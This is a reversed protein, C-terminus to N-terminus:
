RILPIEYPLSLLVIEAGNLAGLHLTPPYTTNLLDTSIEFLLETELKNQVVNIIRGAPEHTHNSSFIDQGEQTLGTTKGLLMRRKMKGLYHSRAVVEQGPYCGKQFNVGGILDLNLTQPIFVDTNIPRLHAIGCRLMHQQLIKESNYSEDIADLKENLYNFHEELMSNEFLLFISFQQEGLIPLAIELRKPNNLSQSSDEIQHVSWETYKKEKYCNIIFFVENSIDFFKCRARLVFMQMRKIVSSVMDRDLILLFDNGHKLVWFLSLLRGKATCYGAIKVQKQNLSLVDNTLQSQLFSGADEGSVRICGLYNVQNRLKANLTTNAVTYLETSM